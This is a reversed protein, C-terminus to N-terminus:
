VPTGLTVSVLQNGGVHDFGHYFCKEVQCTRAVHLRLVLEECIEIKFTLNGSEGSRVAIYCLCSLESIVLPFM